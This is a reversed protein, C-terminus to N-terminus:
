ATYEITGPITKRYECAYDEACPHYLDSLNVEKEGEHAKNEYEIRYCDALGSEDISIYAKVKCLDEAWVTFGFADSYVIAACDSQKPIDKRQIIEGPYLGIYEGTKTYIDVSTDEDVFLNGEGDRLLAGWEPRTAMKYIEGKANTVIVPISAVSTVIHYENTIIKKM